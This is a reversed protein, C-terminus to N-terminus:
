LCSYQFLNGNGEGPYRGLGPVSGPDEVNCAPEKCRLWWPLGDHQVSPSGPRELSLDISKNKGGSQKPSERTTWTTIFRGAIHSVWSRDQPQSSGRSSSITVRDLIRAQLIVHVSFPPSCDMPDCLTLCSQIILMKVQMNSRLTNEPM